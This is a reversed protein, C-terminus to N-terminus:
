QTAVNHFPPTVPNSGEPAQSCTGNGSGTVVLMQKPPESIRSAHIVHEVVPRRNLTRHGRGPRFSGNLAYLTRRARGPASPRSIRPSRQALLLSDFSFQTTPAPRASRTTVM